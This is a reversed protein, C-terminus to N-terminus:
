EYGEPLYGWLWAPVPGAVEVAKGEWLFTYTDRYFRVGLFEFGEDFGTIRTKAPELRLCLGALVDVVVRRAEVAQKRSACCVVFDDAYRVLNWRNRVLEWDLRHLYANCCLPSVASGLAIGRDPNKFRRGVRLWAAMLRLVVPDKIEEALFSRLLDHDLSDFCDDIDADLVWALGRDRFRLLAAV